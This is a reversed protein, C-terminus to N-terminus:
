VQSTGYVSTTSGSVSALHALLFPTEVEVLEIFVFWEFYIALPWVQRFVVAEIFMGNVVHPFAGREKVGGDWGRIPQHDSETSVVGAFM